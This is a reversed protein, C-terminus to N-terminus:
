RRGGRGGFGGGRFGVRSSSLGARSPTPHSSISRQAGGGSRGFSASQASERLSARQAPSLNAVRERAAARQEMTARSAPGAARRQEIRDSRQDFWQKREEPTLAGWREAATDLVLDRPSQGAAPTVGNEDMWGQVRDRVQQQQAPDLGDYWTQVGQRLDDRDYCCAPHDDAWEWFDDDYWYYGLYLWNHYAYPSYAYPYASSYPYATSAGGSAGSGSECAGLLCAAIVIAFPGRM